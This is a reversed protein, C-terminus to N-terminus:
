RADGRTAKRVERVDYRPDILAKGRLAIVRRSRHKALLERLALDVVERESHAGTTRMAEAVLRDDLVINTRM